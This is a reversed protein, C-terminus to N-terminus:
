IGLWLLPKWITVIPPLISQGKATKIWSAELTEEDLAASPVKARWLGGSSGVAM